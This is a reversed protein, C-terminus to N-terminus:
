LIVVSSLKFYERSEEINKDYYYKAVNIYLEAAELLFRPNTTKTQLIDAAHIEDADPIKLKDYFRRVRGKSTLWIKIWEFESPDLFRAEEAVKLAMDNGKPPYNLFLKAKVGCLAAKETQNM